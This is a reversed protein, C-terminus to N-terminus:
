QQLKVPMMTKTRQHEAIPLETVKKVATIAPEKNSERQHVERMMTEQDEKEEQHLQVPAKKRVIEPGIDQKVANIALTMRLSRKTDKNVEKEEQDRRDKLDKRERKQLNL